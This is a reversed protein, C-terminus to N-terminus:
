DTFWDYMFIDDRCTSTKVHELFDNLASKVSKEFSEPVLVFRSPTILKNFVFYSYISDNAATFFEEEDLDFPTLNVSGDSFKANIIEKVQKRNYSVSKM